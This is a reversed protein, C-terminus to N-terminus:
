NALYSSFVDEVIENVDEQVSDSVEQWKQYMKSAGHKICMIGVSYHFNGRIEAELTIKNNGLLKFPNEGLIDLARMSVFLCEDNRRGQEEWWEVDEIRRNFALLSLLRPQFSDYNNSRAMKEIENFIEENAFESWLFLIDNALETHQGKQIEKIIELFSNQAQVFTEPDAFISKIRKDVYDYRDYGDDVVLKLIYNKDIKM